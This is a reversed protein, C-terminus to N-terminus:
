GLFANQLFGPPNRETAVASPEIYKPTEAAIVSCQGGFSIVYKMDAYNPNFRHWEITEM